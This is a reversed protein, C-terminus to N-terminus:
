LGEGVEFDSSKAEVVALKIGKYVLIYDAILPKQRGGGVQIRGDTIRCVNRGRLIRSGEVVGWGASKLWLKEGPMSRIQNIRKTVSSKYGSILSSVSRSQMGPIVNGKEGIDMQGGISNDRMGSIDRVPSRGNAGAIIKVIGHFHNPMVIYECLEIENRIEESREWEEAAIEGYENLIMKGKEIKGFLPNRHHTCITIFYLGKQSYDYGKLRISKRHHKAPNYNM